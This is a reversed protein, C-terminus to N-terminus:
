DTLRPVLLTGCRDTHLPQKCQGARRTAPSFRGCLTAQPPPFPRFGRCTTANWRSSRAWWGSLRLCVTQLVCLILNDYMSTYLSVVILRVVFKTMATTTSFRVGSRSRGTGVIDSAATSSAAVSSVSSAM